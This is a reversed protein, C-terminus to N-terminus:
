LYLQKGLLIKLDQTKYFFSKKQRVPFLGHLTKTFINRHGSSKSNLSVNIKFNNKEHCAMYSVCVM